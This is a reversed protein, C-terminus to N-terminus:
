QAEERAEPAVPPIVVGDGRYYKLRAMAETIWRYLEAMNRLHNEHGKPSMGVVPDGQADKTVRWDEPLLQVPAPDAVAPRAEPRPLDLPPSDVFRTTGCGSLFLVLFILGLLTRM